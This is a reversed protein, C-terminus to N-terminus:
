RRKAPSRKRSPSTRPARATPDWGFQRRPADADVFHLGGNLAMVHIQRRARQPSRALREGHLRVPLHHVGGRVPRQHDGVAVSRRHPQFVQASTISPTCFSLIMVHSFSVGDMMNWTIFCGPVLVTSTTSLTRASNGCNRLCSGGAMLMSVSYSRDSEIRWDTSSTFNESSSATTSTTITIKRNRRLM